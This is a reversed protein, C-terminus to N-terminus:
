IVQRIEEQLSIFASFVMLDNQKVKWATVDTNTRQSVLTERPPFLGWKKKFVDPIIFDGYRMSSYELPHNDELM